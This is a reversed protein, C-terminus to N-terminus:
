LIILEPVDQEIEEFFNINNIYKSIIFLAKEVEDREDGFLKQSM